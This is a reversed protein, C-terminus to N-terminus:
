DQYGGDDCDCPGGDCDESDCEYCNESIVDTTTEDSKNAFHHLIEMQKFDIKEM